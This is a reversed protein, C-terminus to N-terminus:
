SGTSCLTTQSWFAHTLWSEGSHGGFGWDRNRSSNVVRIRLAPHPLLGANQLHKSLTQAQAVLTSKARNECVENCSPVCVLLCATLTDYPLFESSLFALSLVEGLLSLILSHSLLLTWASFLLLFHLLGLGSSLTGLPHLVSLGMQPAWLCKTYIM